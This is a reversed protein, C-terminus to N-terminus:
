HMLSAYKQIQERARKRQYEVRESEREIKERKKIKKETKQERSRDEKQLKVHIPLRNNAYRFCVLFICYGHFVVVPQAKM